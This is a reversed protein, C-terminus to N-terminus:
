SVVVKVCKNIVLHYERKTQWNSKPDWRFLVLRSVSLSSWSDYVYWFISSVVLKLSVVVCTARVLLNKLSIVRLVIWNVIWCVGRTLKLITKSAAFRLFNSWFFFFVFRFSVRGLILVYRIGRFLLLSSVLREFQLIVPIVIAFVSFLILHEFNKLGEQKNKISTASWSLMCGHVTYIAPFTCITEILQSCHMSQFLDLVHWHYCWWWCCCCCLFRKLLTVLYFLTKFNNLVQHM